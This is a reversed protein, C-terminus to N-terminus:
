AEAVRGGAELRRAYPGSHADLHRDLSRELLVRRERSRERPLTALAESTTLDPQDEWPASVAEFRRIEDEAEAASAAEVQEAIFRLLAKLRDADPGTAGALRERVTFFSDPRSLVPFRAHLAEFGPPATVDAALRALLEGRARLFPEVDRRIDALTSVM